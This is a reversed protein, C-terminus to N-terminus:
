DEFSNYLNEMVDELLKTEDEIEFMEKESLNTSIWDSLELKEEINSMKIISDILDAGEPNGDRDLRDALKLLKKIM